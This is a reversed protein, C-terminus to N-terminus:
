KQGQNMLRTNIEAMLLRRLRNHGLVEEMNAMERVIWKGDRKLMKIRVPVRFEGAGDKLLLSMRVIATGKAPLEVALKDDKPNRNRATALASRAEAIGERGINEGSLIEQRLLAESRQKLGPLYMRFVGAAMMKAGLEAATDNVSPKFAFEAVDDMFRSIFHQVDVRAYFREANREALAEIVEGLADLVKQKEGAVAPTLMLMGVMLLMAMRAGTM